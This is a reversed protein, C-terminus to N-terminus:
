RPDRYMLRKGVAQKIALTVAADNGAKIPVPTSYGSADAGSSWIVKGTKKDLAAGASGINLIALEEAILVSGAFGWTPVKAGLDDALKKSWIVSGKAADLCHVVGRKSVTYVRDGDVTPTASTGGEYYKPDLPAAYSHKWIEKGTTADFCFVNDTDDTNGMTYARGGAVAFSAFGTGVKAKWLQKPGETPWTSSWGAEKSIGNHDPGRFNPWDAATLLLTSGFLVLIPFVAITKMRM